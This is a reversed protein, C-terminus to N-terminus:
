CCNYKCDSSGAMEMEIESNQDSEIFSADDDLSDEADEENPTRQQQEQQHQHYQKDASLTDQLLLSIAHVAWPQQQDKWVSLRVLQQLQAQTM